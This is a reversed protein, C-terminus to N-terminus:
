GHVYLKVAEEYTSHNEKNLLSWEQLARNRLHGASQMLTEEESWSNWAAARELTPLWDDLRIEPDEATFSYVPQTTYASGSPVLPPCTCTIPLINADTTSTM